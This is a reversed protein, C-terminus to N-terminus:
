AFYHDSALDRLLSPGTPKWGLAKQTARSSAPNDRGVIQGLFGFHSMAEEASIPVASINLRGAIAEAIGRRTEAIGGTIAALTDSEGTAERCYTFFEFEKTKIYNREFRSDAIGGAVAGSM